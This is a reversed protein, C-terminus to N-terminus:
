NLQLGTSLVSKGKQTTTDPHNDSITESKATTNSQHSKQELNAM